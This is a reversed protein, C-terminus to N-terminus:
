DKAAADKKNEDVMQDLIKNVKALIKDKSRSRLNAM